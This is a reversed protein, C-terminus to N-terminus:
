RLKPAVSSMFYASDEFNLLFERTSSRSPPRPVPNSIEAVRVLPVSMFVGAQYCRIYAEGLAMFLDRFDTRSDALSIASLGRMVYQVDSKAHVKGTSWGLHNILQPILDPCAGVLERVQDREKITLYSACLEGVRVQITKYEDVLQQDATRGAKSISDADFQGSWTKRFLAERRQTYASVDPGLKSALREFDEFDM